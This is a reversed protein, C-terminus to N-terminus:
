LYNKKTQKPKQEREYRKRHGLKTFAEDLRKRREKGQKLVASWSFDYNFPNEDVYDQADMALRQFDSFVKRKTNLDYCDEYPDPPLHSKAKVVDPFLMAVTNKFIQDSDKLKNKQKRKKIENEEELKRLPERQKLLEETNLQKKQLIINKIRAQENGQHQERVIELYRQGPSIKVVKKKEPQKRKATSEEIIVEEVNQAEVQVVHRQNWEEQWKLFAKKREIEKTLFASLNEEQARGIIPNQHGRHYMKMLGRYDCLAAVINKIRRPQTLVHTAAGNSTLSVQIPTKSNNFLMWFEVYGDMRTLKVSSQVFLAWNGGTYISPSKRWVIPRNPFNERWFAFVRGGVSLITDSIASYDLSIVPGDHYKGANVFQCDEWNVIEGSDFEHGEWTAQIYDGEMTGVFFRQRRDSNWFHLVPKYILRDSLKPNKKSEKSSIEYVTNFYRAYFSSINLIRHNELVHTVNIKYIPKLNLHLQKFPSEAVLLASPRKKLRRMKRIAKFGGPAVVPKKLLDWIMISGDESSTLLQLSHDADEDLEEIKGTKSVSHFPSMWYIANVCGKHSYKLDSLATPRILAKDYINKMWEMLSFMHARYRQQYITLVEEEEVQNLKGTIDWLILQGNVCGGLILNSDYPCCSLTYVPRPTQLILKPKLDDDFSWFLVPHTDHIARYVVDTTIRSGLYLNPATEVYSAVVCGTWMPHWCLSAIMKRGCLKMDIFCLYDKTLPLSVKFTSKMNLILNEYDNSYLNIFGNVRLIDNISEINHSMYEKFFKGFKDLISEDSPIDYKYQTYANKPYRCVTQAENSVVQPTVQTVSDIRRRYVTSPKDDGPKLEMYGDRMNQSNVQRFQITYPLVPYKSEIEVEILSRNRRIKMEELDEDSGLPKWYKVKRHVANKLRNEQIRKMKQMIENVVDIAENTVCVFFEDNEQSEDQIYCILMERGTFEMIEDKIPLFESDEPNTELCTQILEADVNMSPKEPTINDGVVCGIAHQTLESLVKLLKQRQQQEQKKSKLQPMDKRGTRLTTKWNFDYNFPNEDVYDQAQISINKFNNFAEVKTQKTYCDEYPNPPPPPKEKIVDPFLMAVSNKYIKDAEKLKNKQKRKKVENEEEFRRLPERRKLLEETNMQKKELIMKKIRVEETARHQHQILQLYREGPTIIETKKKEEKRRTKKLEQIFVVMEQRKSEEKQIQSTYRQNWEEQWQLFVKKREIESTLFQSMNKEKAEIVLPSQHVTYFMRSSGRYDCLAFVDTKLKRPHTSIFNAAGNSTLTIVLPAKSKHFLTWVELYGDVRILKMTANEFCFWSGQTYISKSKRWLIPQNPFDERWLAFVRGGVSLITDNVPSYDVNVVPGDHYKGHSTFRCNEWNVIEGSDFEQGDWSAQIFDGEMTGVFFNKRPCSNYIELVPKYILRESLKLCRKSGRTATEYITNFYRGFFSSISLIRPNELTSTINIKYIPKLNLHLEKFPSEDVSLASPRKKLRKLKRSSKFGGPVITPKKLLDWIMVSGDEASSLFQLSHSADEDIKEVTGTKSVSHFPSMWYIANVCGKHSYKLDSVATPRILALDFINKMWNMLSFMYERYKQQKLILIEEEEVRNLKNSIDWLIIQGNVCGGVVLNENYPCCSLAFVPRPTELILKPKLDDTFSWFLVPNTDHVANYVEDTPNPATLYLPAATEVYSLVFCGTWMPHWCMSSIMKGGCLKMNIFCLYEEATPPIVKFSFKPNHVLNEYDNIYLDICGNVRLIDCFLDMNKDVYDEFVKVCEKSPQYDLPVDYEYQTFANRPYTCDTQAENMNWSPAVQVYADVRKKYVTGPSDEGPRLAMYGDRLDQAKIQRFHVKFPLIPYKSEIEVEILNRNYKIACEDVEKDSGLNKWRKIKKHIANQLREEQIRRLKEVIENVARTAEETVCIFFEDYDKSEDPIYGMLMETGPFEMIERKLPLFESTETRSELNEQILDKDVYIWPKEATVNDGAICSIANQTNENLVIKHVGPINFNPKFKRDSKRRKRKKTPTTQKSSPPESESESAIATNPNEVTNEKNEM